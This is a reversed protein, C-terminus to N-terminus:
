KENLTGADKQASFYTKNLRKLNLQRAKGLPFRRSYISSFEHMKDSFVMAEINVELM